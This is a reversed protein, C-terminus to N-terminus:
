LGLPKLNFLDEGYGGMNTFLGENYGGVTYLGGYIPRPERGKATCIVFPSYRYM